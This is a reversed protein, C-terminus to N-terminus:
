YIPSNKAIKNLVIFDPIKSVNLGSTDGYIEDIQDYYEYDTLLADKLIGKISAVEPNIEIMGGGQEVPIEGTSEPLFAYTAIITNKSFELAVLEALDYIPIDNNQYMFDIVDEPTPQSKVVNSELLRWLKKNKIM